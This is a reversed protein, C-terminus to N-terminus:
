EMLYESLKGLDFPSIHSTKLSRESSLDSSFNLYM